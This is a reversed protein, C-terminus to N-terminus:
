FGYLMVEKFFAAASLAMNDILTRQLGTNRTFNVLGSDDVNTTTELKKEYSSTLPISDNFVIKPHESLNEGISSTLTQIEGITPHKILILRLSLNITTQSPLYMEKRTGLGANKSVLVRAAVKENEARIDASSIIGLLVADANEDNGTYVKLGPFERLVLMIERSFAGSVDPFSSRNIFMPVTVSHIGYITLPNDPRRFRYGACSVLFFIALITIFRMNLLKVKDVKTM